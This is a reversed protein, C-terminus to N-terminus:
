VRGPRLCCGPQRMSGPPLPAERDRMHCWTPGLMSSALLLMPGAGFSCCIEPFFQTLGKSTMQSAQERICRHACREKETKCLPGAGEQCLGELVRAPCPLGAPLPSGARGNKGYPPGSSQSAEPPPKGVSLRRPCPTLYVHSTTFGPGYWILMKVCM